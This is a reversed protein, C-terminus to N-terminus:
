HHLQKALDVTVPIPLSEPLARVSSNTISIESRRLAEISKIGNIPIM